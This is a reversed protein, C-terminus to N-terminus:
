DTPRAGGASASQADPAPAKTSTHDHTIVWRENIRQFTLTFNGGLPGADRDLQWDGLVLLDHPALSRVSVTTFALRRMQEPTPYRDPYRALTAEWGKRTSGGSSFTLEPSKWYGQMFAEIDGHNWAEVQADLVAQVQRVPTAHQQSCGAPILAVVVALLLGVYVRQAVLYVGPGLVTSM